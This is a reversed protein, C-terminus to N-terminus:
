RLRLLGERGQTGQVGQAGQPGGSPGQAGQVGQAGQNGQVGQPGTPSGQPGQLGQPGQAGQPGANLLIWDNGTYGYFENTNDIFVIQGTQPNIIDNLTNFKPIVLSDIITVNNLNSDKNLKFM